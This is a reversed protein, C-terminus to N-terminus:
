PTGPAAGRLASRSSTVTGAPRAAGPARSRDCAGDTGPGALDGGPVSDAPWGTLCSGIATHLQNLRPRWSELTDHGQSTLEYRRRPPGAPSTVWVSVVSHRRELSRLARYAQGAEVDTLGLEGLREVLDYGHGPQQRILLLLLAQLLSRM